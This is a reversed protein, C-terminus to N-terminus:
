EGAEQAGTTYPFMYWGTTELQQTSTLTVTVGTQNNANSAEEDGDKNLIVIDYTDSAGSKFKAKVVEGNLYVYVEDGATITAKEAFVATNVQDIDVTEDNAKAALWSTIAAKLDAKAKTENADSIISGFTPILIASLIAIVAIVIVLEVLTFGKKTRKNM